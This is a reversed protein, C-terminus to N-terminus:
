SSTERENKGEIQENSIYDLDLRPAEKSSSLHGPPNLFM